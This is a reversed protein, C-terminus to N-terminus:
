SEGSAFARRLAAAAMDMAELTRAADPGYSVFGHVMGAMEVHAAEGGAAVIAEAYARAEAALPDLEATIVLAPALGAHSPALLPSVLPDRLDRHDGLYRAWYWDMGQRSLFYPGGQPDGGRATADTVPYFLLQFMPFAMGRDRGLLAVAAALNGGASAGSVAIRAPDGNIAAANAHAWACADWCDELGAPFPHEPALRYEVSITICRAAVTLRQCRLDDAGVSGTVWGGGHFNMLIPFPGAGDPWCIRVPVDRGELALVRDECRAALGAPPPPVAARLMAVAGEVKRSELQQAHDFGILELIRRMEPDLPM